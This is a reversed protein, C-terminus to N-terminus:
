KFTKELEDYNDMISMWEEKTLDTQLRARQDFMNYLGSKQVEVFDEFQERTIEM